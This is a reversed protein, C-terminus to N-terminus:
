LKFLEAITYQFAPLLPENLIEKFALIEKLALGYQGGHYVEVNDYRPDVMWLRPLNMQEYIAKKIVTDPHHDESSVVEAVLWLKNTAATVLAVDPRLRTEHSVQVTSRPPLLQAVTAEAMSAAIREHLRRCIEEHRQGPPPRLFAEGELTEEYPESM